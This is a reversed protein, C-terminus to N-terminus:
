RETFTRTIVGASGSGGWGCAGERRADGRSCHCGADGRTMCGQVIYTLHTGGCHGGLVYARGYREGESVLTRGERAGGGRSGASHGENEEKGRRGGGGGEGAASWGKGVSGRRLLTRVSDIPRARAMAALRNAGSPLCMSRAQPLFHM